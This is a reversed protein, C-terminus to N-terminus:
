RTSEAWGTGRPPGARTSPHERSAHEVAALHDRGAAPAQHHAGAQEARRRRQGLPQRATGLLLHAPGDRVPQRPRQQGRGPDHRQQEDAAPRDKAAQVGPDVAIDGVWRCTSAAAAAARAFASRFVDIARM